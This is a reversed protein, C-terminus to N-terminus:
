IGPDPSGLGLPPQFTMVKASDTASAGSSLTIQTDSDVSLVTSGNLITPGHAIDGVNIGETSTMSTIVPDGLITDGAEVILKTSYIVTVSVKIGDFYGVEAALQADKLEAIIGLICRYEDLTYNGNNKIDILIGVAISTWLFPAPSIVGVFSDDEDWIHGNNFDAQTPPDTITNNEDWGGEYGATNLIEPTVGVCEFILDKINTVTAHLRNVAMASCIKQRIVTLSDGPFIRANLMDAVIGVIEANPIKECKFIDDLHEISLSGDSHGNKRIEDRYSNMIDAFDRWEPDSSEQAAQPFAEFLDRTLLDLGAM